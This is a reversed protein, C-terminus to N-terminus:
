KEKVADVAEIVAEVSEAARKSDIVGEAIIYAIASGVTIVAGSITEVSSDSYGFIMLIGSVIGAVAVWFKRSTLKTKM